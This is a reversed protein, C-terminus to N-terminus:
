DGKKFLADASAKHSAAFAIRAEARSIEAKLIEIRAHLEDISLPDLDEHPLGSALDGKRRPLNEDFDM